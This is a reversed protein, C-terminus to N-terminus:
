LIEGDIANLMLQSTPLKESMEGLWTDTGFFIWCPMLRYEDSVDKVPVFQNGLVVRNINIEPTSMNENSENSELFKTNVLVLNMKEEFKEQAQEFNLVPVNKNEVEIIEVPNQWRFSLIGTDDIDMWIYEPTWPNRYEGSTGGEIGANKWAYLQILPSKVGEITRSFFVSYCQKKSNESNTLNTYLDSVQVDSVEMFDLGMEDLATKGMKIADEESITVGNPPDAQHRSNTYAGWFDYNQLEIYARNMDAREDVINIRAPYKKGTDFYISSNNINLNDINVEHREIDKESPLSEYQAEFEQLPAGEGDIFKDGLSVRYQKEDVLIQEILEKTYFNDGDPNDYVTADKAFYSIINKIVKPDFGSQKVRVVPYMGSEPVEIPADITIKVGGIELKDSWVENDTVKQTEEVASVKNKDFYDEKKNVVIEENPTAQCGAFSFLLLVIVISFVLRKKM